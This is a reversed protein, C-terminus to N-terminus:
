SIYVMKGHQSLIMNTMQIHNKGLVEHYSKCHISSINLIYSSISSCYKKDLFNMSHTGYSQTCIDEFFIGM